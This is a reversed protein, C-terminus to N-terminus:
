LTIWHEIEHGHMIRVVQSGCLGMRRAASHSSNNEAVFEEGTAVNYFKTGKLTSLKRRKMRSALLSTELELERECLLVNLYTKLVDINDRAIGLVFGNRVDILAHDRFAFFLGAHKYICYCGYAEVFVFKIPDLQSFLFRQLNPKYIRVYSM